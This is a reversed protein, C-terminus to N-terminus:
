DDDPEEYRPAGPTTAAGLLSRTMANRSDLLEDLARDLQDATVSLAGTSGGEEASLLAARRLLEKLFSATVGATRELVGDLRSTDVDLEGRYLDFLRRRADLEPHEILVAQDVRGPRQALAPELVDARNTTLVFLVDADEDLGDMENLLQFLLPHEGPHMGRDEAILDVDEIVIVSPQLTRAVSCAAGILHLSEGSLLVVTSDTLQGLLYRVTHTKGVGPPGFLLLGRKLHQRASLLRERHRAVGVVQREIAALTAPPLILQDATMTSRAHFSLVTSREGFMDGAFSVVQRRYVNHELAAARVEAAAREAYAQDTAVVEVSTRARGMDDGGRRVLLAARHEGEVVLVVACEVCARVEGGPGSPLNIRAVNGPMPGHMMPGPRLLDALGFDQHRHSVVGVVEHERVPDGLWADLGAQVNVHEYSPWTEQVIDASQPDVALHERVIRAFTAREEARAAGVVRRRGRRLLKGVDSLRLREDDPDDPTTAAPGPGPGLPTYAFWGTESGVQVVEPPWGEV